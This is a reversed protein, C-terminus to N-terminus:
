CDFSSAIMYASGFNGYSIVINIMMAVTSAGTLSGVVIMLIQNVKNVNLKAVLRNAIYSFIGGIILTIGIFLGAVSLDIENTAFAECLSGLGSFVVQFGVTASAVVPEIDLFLLTFIITTSSGVGFVGGNFGGLFGGLCSVAYFKVNDINYDYQYQIKRFYTMKRQAYFYMGIVYIIYILTLVCM